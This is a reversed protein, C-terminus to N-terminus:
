KRENGRRRGIGNHPGLQKRFNGVSFSSARNQPQIIAILSVVQGRLPHSKADVCSSNHTVIIRKNPFGRM